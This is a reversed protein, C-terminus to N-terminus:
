VMLSNLSPTPLPDGQYMQEKQKQLPTHTHTHTHVIGRTFTMAKRRKEVLLWFMLPHKCLFLLVEWGSGVEM